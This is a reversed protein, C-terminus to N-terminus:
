SLTFYSVNVQRCTPGLVSCPYREANEKDLTYLKKIPRRVRGDPGYVHSMDRSILSYASTLLQENSRARWACRGKGTRTTKWSLELPLQTKSVQFRHSGAVDGVTVYSVTSAALFGCAAYRIICLWEM